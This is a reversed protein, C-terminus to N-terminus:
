FTIETFGRAAQQECAQQGRLLWRNQTTYPNIQVVDFVEWTGRGSFSEARLVTSDACIHWFAEKRSGGTVFPQLSALTQSARHQTKKPPCLQFKVGPLPNASLDKM